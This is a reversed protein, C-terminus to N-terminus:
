LSVGAMHSMDAAHDRCRDCLRYDESTPFRNRCRLCTRATMEKAKGKPSAVQGRLMAIACNISSKSRGMREALLRRNKIGSALYSRLQKFESDTWRKGARTM